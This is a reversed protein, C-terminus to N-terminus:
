ERRSVSTIPYSSSPAMPDPKFEDYKFFLKQQAASVGTQVAILEQFKAFRKNFSLATLLVTPFTGLSFSLTPLTLGFRLAM